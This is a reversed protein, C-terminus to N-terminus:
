IKAKKLAMKNALWKGNVAIIPYSKIVVPVSDKLRQIMFVIIDKYFDGEEDCGIFKKGRYQACKRLYMKDVMVAINQSIKDSERLYSCVKLAYINGKRLKSLLSFLTSSIVNFLPYLFHEQLLKYAQFSTYLVLMALCILRSSYPLRGKAKYHQQTIMEVLLRNQNDKFSRLYSSFNDLM